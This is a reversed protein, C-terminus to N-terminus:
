EKRNIDCLNIIEMGKELVLDAIDKIEERSEVYKKLADVSSISENIEENRSVHERVIESKVGACFKAKDLARQVKGKDLLDLHTEKIKYTLRAIANPLRKMNIADIIKQAPDEKTIDINTLDVKIHYLDVAPLEGFKCSKSETDYTVFGIPKDAQSFDIRDLPGTYVVLPDKCVIQHEHIHGFAAFDFGKFLSQPLVIEAMSEADVAGSPLVAGEISQHGILITAGQSKLSGVEETYYQLAETHTKVSLKQKYIYPMVGIKVGSYEQISPEDVINIHPLNLEKIVGISHSQGEGALIDHNGTSILVRQGADSLKCLRKAFHAQQTNTPNRTKYIDGAIVLLDIKNTADLVYDVIIDFNRLFDELRTHLGTEPNIRGLHDSHGFHVDATLAIRM